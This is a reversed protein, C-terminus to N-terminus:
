AAGVKNGLFVGMNLVNELTLGHRSRPSVFLSVQQTHGKVYNDWYTHANDDVWVFPRPNEQQDALIAEAKWQTWDKKGVQRTHLNAPLVRGHDLGGLHEALRLVTNNENWTTLWVLEAKYQQRLQEILGVVTPSFTIHNETRFNSSGKVKIIFKEVVDHQPETANFVGDFDLYLTSNFM